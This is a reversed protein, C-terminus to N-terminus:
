SSFYARMWPRRDAEPLLLIAARQQHRRARGLEWEVWSAVPPVSKGKGKNTGKNNGKDKGMGKGDVHDDGRLTVMWLDHTSIGSGKGKGKGGQQDGIIIVDQQDQQQQQQQQQQRQQRRQLQILMINDDQLGQQNQQASDDADRREQREQLRQRRLPPEGDRRM